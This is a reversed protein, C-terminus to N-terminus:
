ILKYSKEGYQGNSTCSNNRDLLQVSRVVLGSVNSIMVFRLRSQQFSNSLWCVHLGNGLGSNDLGDSLWRKHLLNFKVVIVVSLIVERVSHVVLVGAVNLILVFSTVAILNMSLVTQDIRIAVLTGNLVGGIVVVSEISDNVTLWGVDLDGLRHVLNGNGLRNGFHDSLWSIDM